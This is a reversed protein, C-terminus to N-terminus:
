PTRVVRASALANQELAAPLSSSGLLLPPSYGATVLFAAIEDALHDIGGTTIDATWAGDPWIPTLRQDAFPKTWWGSGVRIYVAVRHDAPKIHLARGKLNDFSGLAPVHTFVVAASGPGDVTETGSWNDAISLGALV